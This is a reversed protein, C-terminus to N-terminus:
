APDDQPLARSVVVDFPEASTRHATIYEIITRVSEPSTPLIWM